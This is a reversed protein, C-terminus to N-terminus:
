MLDQHDQSRSKNVKIATQHWCHDELTVENRSVEVFSLRQSELAIMALEAESFECCSDLNFSEM